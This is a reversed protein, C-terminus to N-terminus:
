LQDIPHKNHLGRVNLLESLGSFCGGIAKDDSLSDNIRAAMKMQAMYLHNTCLELWHVWENQSKSVHILVMGDGYDELEFTPYDNSKGLLETCMEILRRAQKSTVKIPKLKTNM